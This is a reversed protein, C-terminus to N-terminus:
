LGKSKLFDLSTKLSDFPDRYCTDQEVIYWKVGASKCAALIATWNLNGQGVEMMYHTRDPKIGIDKFHVCPIRGAVANIWAAPDAGGHQVWYTDVEIWIDKSLGEMLIQWATKEGLANGVRAFEHSHNHYGIQIGTGAFKSAASNFDTVFQQWTALNFNEAKPFFGGIATYQCNWIKHEDIISQPNDRMREIGIHTAACTLGNDDLMKKLERADIPGLASLQVAEYGLGRVKKLTSAIDAPTKLYDRLTYLQAAIQTPM